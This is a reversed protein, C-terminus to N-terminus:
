GREILEAFAGLVLRRPPRPVSVRKETEINSSGEGFIARCLGVTALFAVSKGDDDLEFEGRGPGIPQGPALAKVTLGQVLM